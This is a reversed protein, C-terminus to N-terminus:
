LPGSVVMACSILMVGFSPYNISSVPLLTGLFPLVLMVYGAYINAISWFFSFSARTKSPDASIQSQGDARSPRHGRHGGQELVGVWKM